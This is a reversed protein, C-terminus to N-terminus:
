VGLLPSVFGEPKVAVVPRDMGNVINEATNGIIVGTLGTRAVTGMVVAHADMLGAQERIVREAAGRVLRPVLPPGAGNGVESLLRRMAGERAAVVENVYRDATSRADGTGAFAWVMGEGPADWAHLVLVEAGAGSALMRAVEVVRRNLAWLTAPEAADWDDLDVAAVVRAPAPVASPTLLWVPCPCKRLLHQDTSAFLFRDVGSLPEARKVVFDCGTRAVHQVIELYPKGVLIEPEAALGPGLRAVAGGLADRVRAVAGALLGDPDTGSLRALVAMDRPPEVCAVVELAADHRRALGQAAELAASDGEQGAVALIRTPRATARV